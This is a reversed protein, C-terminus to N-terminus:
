CKARGQDAAMTMPRASPSTSAHRRMRSTLVSGDTTETGSPKSRQMPYSFTRIHPHTSTHIHPGSHQRLPYVSIRMHSLACAGVGIEACLHSYDCLRGHPLSAMRVNAYTRRPLTAQTWLLACAFMSVHSLSFLLCHAYAFLRKRPCLAPPVRPDVIRRRLRIRGTQRRLHAFIRMHTLRIRPTGRPRLRAHQQRPRAGRSGDPLPLPPAPPSYHTHACAFTQFGRVACRAPNNRKHIHSYTLIRCHADGGRRTDAPATRYPPRHPRSRPMIANSYCCM